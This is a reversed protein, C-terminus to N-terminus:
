PSASPSPHVQGETSGWCCRDCRPVHEHLSFKRPSGAYLVAAGAWAQPCSRPLALRQRPSSSWVLLYPPEQGMGTTVVCDVDRTQHEQNFFDPRSAELKKDYCPMVTVHYIKDPTVCQMSLRHFCPTVAQNWFYLPGTLTPHSSMATM